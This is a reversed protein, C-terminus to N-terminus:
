LIYTGVHRYICHGIKQLQGGQICEQCVCGEGGWSARVGSSRPKERGEKRGGGKGRGEGTRGESDGASCSSETEKM